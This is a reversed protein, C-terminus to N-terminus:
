SSMDFADLNMKVEFHSLYERLSFNGNIVCPLTKILIGSHVKRETLFLKFVLVDGGM